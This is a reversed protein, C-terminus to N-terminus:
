ATREVVHSSSSKEAQRKGDHIWGEYGSDAYSPSVTAAFLMATGMKIIKNM